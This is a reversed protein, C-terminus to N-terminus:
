DEDESILESSKVRKMLVYIMSTFMSIVPHLFIM